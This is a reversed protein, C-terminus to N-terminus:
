SSRPEPQKTTDKNFDDWSLKVENKKNKKNFNIKISLYLWRIILENAFFNSNSFLSLCIYCLRWEGCEEVDRTLDNLNRKGGDCWGFIGVLQKAGGKLVELEKAIICNCRLQNGYLYRCFSLCSWKRSQKNTQKSKAIVFM